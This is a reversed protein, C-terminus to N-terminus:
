QMTKQYDGLCCSFYLPRCMSRCTSSNRLLQSRNREPEEVKKTHVLSLSLPEANAKEGYKKRMYVPSCLIMM